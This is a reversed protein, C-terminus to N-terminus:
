PYRAYGIRDPVGRADTDEVEVRVGVVVSADKGEDAFRLWKEPGGYLEGAGAHALYVKGSLATHM